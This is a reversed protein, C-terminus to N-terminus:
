GKNELIESLEASWKVDMTGDCRDRREDRAQGEMPQFKLLGLRVDWLHTFYADSPIECRSRM